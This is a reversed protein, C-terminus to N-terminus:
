PYIKKLRAARIARATQVMAYVAWATFLIAGLVNLKVAIKHVNAGGKGFLSWVLIELNNEQDVTGETARCLMERSLFVM